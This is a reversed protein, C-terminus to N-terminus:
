GRRIGSFIAVAHRKDTGFFKDVLRRCKVLEDILNSIGDFIHKAFTVRYRRKFTIRTM